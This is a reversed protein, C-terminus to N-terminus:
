FLAKQQINESEEGRWLSIQLDVKDGIFIVGENELLEKKSSVGDGFAYGTLKGDASVLRHCPITSPDTNQKMCMGVARAAGPSGVLKAVQGYTM